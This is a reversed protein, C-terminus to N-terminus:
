WAYAEPAPKAAAGNTGVAPFIADIKDLASEDLKIELARLSGTLQELTRPGIIPATVVKNNLVWALALDAPKEGMEAAFSDWQDLQPGLKEIDRKAWDGARRGEKAQKAGGALVGGGLPSWPILGLGYDECAPIVELEPYRCILSYKSQESVLGLTGRAKASEQAKAIHWGAFNSSGVYLIKGQAALHDFAEWAEDWPCSREIHHMQILDLYDTKLAQLSGEVARKIHLKNVGKENPWNGMEGFLKTAIVVKERRGGGQGFFDGIIRETVREGQKWGYVDATDWFNIGNDLAADMISFSDPPTTDVGFNM